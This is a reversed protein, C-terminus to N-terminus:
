ERAANGMEGGWGGWEGGRERGVEGFWRPRPSPRSSRRWRWPVSTLTGRNRPRSQGRPGLPDPVEGLPSGPAGGTATPLPPGQGRTRDHQLSLHSPLPPVSSPPSPFLLSLPLLILVQSLISLLSLSFPLFLPILSLSPRSFFPFFSLSPLSSFFFLLYM